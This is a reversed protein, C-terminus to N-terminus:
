VWVWIRLLIIHNDVFRLTSFDAESLDVPDSDSDLRILGNDYLFFPINKRQNLNVQPLVSLTKVSIHQQLQKWIGNKSRSKEPLELLQTSIHDIYTDYVTQKHLIQVVLLHQQRYAKDIADQQITYVITFTGIILTLCASIILQIHRFHQTSKKTQIRVTIVM